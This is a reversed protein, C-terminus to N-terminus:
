WGRWLIIALLGAHLRQPTVLVERSTTRVLRMKVKALYRQISCESKAFRVKWCIAPNAGSTVTLAGWM